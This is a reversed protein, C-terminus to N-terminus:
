GLASKLLNTEGALAKTKKREELDTDKISTNTTSNRHKEVHHKLFNRIDLMKKEHVVNRFEVEEAKKLLDSVPLIGKNSPDVYDFIRKQDSSNIVQDIKNRVMYKNFEDLTITDGLKKHFKVYIFLSFNIILIM